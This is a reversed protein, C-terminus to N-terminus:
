EFWNASRKELCSFYKIKNNWFMWKMQNNEEKKSRTTNRKTRKPQRKDKIKWSNYSKQESKNIKTDNASKQRDSNTNINVETSKRNKATRRSLNDPALTWTNYKPM